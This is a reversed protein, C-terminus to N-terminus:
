NAPSTCNANIAEVIQAITYKTRWGKGIDICVNGDLILDELEKFQTFDVSISKLKNNYLWIKQLKKNNAFFDSDIVEIPNDSAVFKQLKVLRWLLKKPLLKINSISLVLSELEVNKGFLNEDIESLYNGFFEICKLNINKIFFEKDISEIHIFHANFENLKKLKWLLKPPLNRIENGGLKLKELNILDVFTDENLEFIQNYDVYLVKLKGMFKFNERRISKINEHSADATELNPFHAGINSPLYDFEGKIKIKKVDQNNKGELHNGKISSVKV